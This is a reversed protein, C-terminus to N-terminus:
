RTITETGYAAILIAPFFPLAESLSMGGASHSEIVSECEKLLSFPLHIKDM